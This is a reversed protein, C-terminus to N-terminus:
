AFEFEFFYGCNLRLPSFFVFHRTRSDHKCRPIVAVERLIAPLIVLVTRPARHDPYGPPFYSPQMGCRRPPISTSILMGPLPFIGHEHRTSTPPLPVRHCGYVCKSTEPIRSVDFHYCLGPRPRRVLGTCPEFNLFNDATQVIQM